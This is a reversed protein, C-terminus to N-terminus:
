GPPKAAMSDPSVIIGAPDVVDFDDTSLSGLTSLDSNKWRGDPTGASHSCM